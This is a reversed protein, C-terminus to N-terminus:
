SRFARKDGYSFLAQDLLRLNDTTGTREGIQRFLPCYIKVYGQATNPVSVGCLRKVATRVRSDCIPYRGGSIFYLLTTARSLGFRKKVTGSVLTTTYTTGSWNELFQEVRNQPPCTPRESAAKMWIDYAVSAVNPKWRGDSNAADKWQGIREFDSAQLLRRKSILEDHTKEDYKKTNFEAAWVLLWRQPTVKTKGDLGFFRLTSM